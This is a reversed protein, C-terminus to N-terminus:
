RGSAKEKAEQKEIGAEKEGAEPELFGHEIMWEDSVFKTLYNRIGDPLIGLVKSGEPLERAVELMGLAVAGSSGGVLLGEGTCARAYLEDPM